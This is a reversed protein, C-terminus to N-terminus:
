FPTEDARIPDQAPQRTDWDQASVNAPTADPQETPRPGDAPRPQAPTDTRRSSREYHSVGFRLDHGISDAEIDASTGTRGKSEWERLRLRGTVIVSDGRKLSSKANDALKRFASVSYWNTNTEVWTQTGQDFHRQASAVRFSTISVGKASVIHQPDTAVNGVVTLTDTM